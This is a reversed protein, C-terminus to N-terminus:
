RPDLARIPAPKAGDDRAPHPVRSCLRRTVRSKM